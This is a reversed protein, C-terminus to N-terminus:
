SVAIEPYSIKRKKGLFCDALSATTMSMGVMLPSKKKGFIGDVTAVDLLKKKATTSLFTDEGYVAYLEYAILDVFPRYPEMIDDALCYANYKNRHHIGLTPLLGSAVLARAIMARVIAYGYNLMNNPPDGVRDRLFGDIFTSWYYAAAQGEINEPDGASVRKVLVSLRKSPKELIDLVAKQNRIKAIITQQWLNKKLPLSAEIQYKYRESQESHGELSLTLSSPMHRDDCSIIVAKNDVLAKIANHSITIQSNDLVVVGVDEIPRTIRRENVVNNVHINLQKNKISLYTPNGFYLTKKIM